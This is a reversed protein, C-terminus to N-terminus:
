FSLGLKIGVLNRYHDSQRSNRSASASEIRNGISSDFPSGTFFGGSVKMRTGHEPAELASFAVSTPNLLSHLVKGIVTKRFDEHSLIYQDTQYMIEGLLSGLIPTALLDQISMPEAYSEIIEFQTSMLVAYAFSQLPSYGLNRVLTYYSAGSMPHLVFNVMFPDKDFVPGNALHKAYSGATDKLFSDKTAKSWNSVSEPLMFFSANVGLMMVTLFGTKKALVEHENELDPVKIKLTFEEPHDVPRNLKETYFILKPVKKYEPDSCFTNKLTLNARQTQTQSDLNSDCIKDADLTIKYLEQFKVEQIQTEPVPGYSEMLSKLLASNPKYEKSMIALDMASPISYLAPSKAEEAFSPNILGLQFSFVTLLSLQSVSNFHFKFTSKPTLM